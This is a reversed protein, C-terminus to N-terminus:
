ESNIQYETVIDLTQVGISGTSGILAIQKQTM